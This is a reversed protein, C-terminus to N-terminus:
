QHWCSGLVMSGVSLYGRTSTRFIDLVMQSCNCIYWGLLWVIYHSMYVASVAPFIRSSRSPSAFKRNPNIMLNTPRRPSQLRSLTKSRVPNIPQLQDFLNPTPMSVPSSSPIASTPMLLLQCVNKEVTRRHFMMLAVLVSVAEEEEIADAVAAEPEDTGIGREMEIFKLFPGTIEAQLCIPLHRPQLTGIKKQRKERLVHLPDTGIPIGNFTPWM